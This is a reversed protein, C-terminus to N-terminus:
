GWDGDDMQEFRGVGVPEDDGPGSESIEYLPNLLFELALMGAVFHFNNIKGSQLIKVGRQTSTVGRIFVLDIDRILHGRGLRFIQFTTDIQVRGPRRAQGLGDPEGVLNDRAVSM